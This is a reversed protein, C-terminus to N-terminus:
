GGLGRESGSLPFLCLAEPKRKDIRFLAALSISCSAPLITLRLAVREGESGRGIRSLNEAVFKRNWREMVPVNEARTETGGEMESLSEPVFKRNGKGNQLLERGRIKQEGKGNQLLERGRIKQEGKGNQFPPSPSLVARGLARWKGKGKRPFPSPTLTGCVKRALFSRLSSSKLRFV